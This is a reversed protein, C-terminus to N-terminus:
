HAVASPRLFIKYFQRSQSMEAYLYKRRQVYYASDNATGLFTYQSLM